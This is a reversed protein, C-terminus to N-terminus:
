RYLYFEHKRQNLGFAGLKSLFDYGLLMGGGLPAGTDVIKLYVNKTANVTDLVDKPGVAIGLNPIGGVMDVPELATIYRPTYASVQVMRNGISDLRILVVRKRTYDVITEFPEFAAPGLNGLSLSYGWSFDNWLHGLVANYTNSPADLVRALNSDNFDDVLTGLKLRVHVKDFRRVDGPGLRELHPTTDPIRHADTITDVGGKANPQLFARNFVTPAAGLDFSFVGRIGDVEAPLLVDTKHFEAPSLTAPMPAEHSELDRFFPIITVLEPKNPIGPALESLEMVAPAAGRGRQSTAPTCATVGITSLGVLPLLWRLGAFGVLSSRSKTM